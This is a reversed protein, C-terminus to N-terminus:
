KEYIYKKQKIRVLICDNFGWRENSKLLALGAPIVVARCFRPAVGDSTTINPIYKKKKNPRRHTKKKKDNLYSPPVTVNERCSNYLFIPIINDAHDVCSNLPSLKLLRVCLHIFVLLILDPVLYPLSTSM